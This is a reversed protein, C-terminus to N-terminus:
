KYIITLISKAIPENVSSTFDYNDNLLVRLTDILGDTGSKNYYPEKTIKKVKLM